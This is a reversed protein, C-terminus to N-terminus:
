NIIGIFSAIACVDFIISICNFFLIVFYGWGDSRIDTLMEVLSKFFGFFKGIWYSFYYSLINMVILVVRKVAQELACFFKYLGFNKFLDSNEVSFISFKSAGIIKNSYKTTVFALLGNIIAYIIALILMFKTAGTLTNYWNKLNKMRKERDM